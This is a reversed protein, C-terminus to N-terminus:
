RWSLIEYHGAQTGAYVGGVRLRGIEGTLFRSPPPSSCHLLVIVDVVLRIQGPWQRGEVSGM